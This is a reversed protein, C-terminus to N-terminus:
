GKREFLVHDANNETFVIQWEMAWLCKASDPNNVQKGTTVDFALISLAHGTVRVLTQGLMMILAGRDVSAGAAGNKLHTLGPKPRIVAKQVAIVTTNEFGECSVLSPLHRGNQQELHFDVVGPKGDLRVVKIAPSPEGSLSHFFFDGAQLNDFNANSFPSYFLM